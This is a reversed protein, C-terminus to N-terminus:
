GTTSNQETATSKGEFLADKVQIFLGTLVDSDVENMMAVIDGEQFLPQDNQDTCRIALELCIAEMQGKTNKREQIKAAKVCSIAPKVKVKGLHENEIEVDVAALAATASKLKELASM